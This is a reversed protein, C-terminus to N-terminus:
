KVTNWDHEKSLDRLRIFHVTKIKRGFERTSELREKDRPRRNAQRSKVFLAMAEADDAGDFLADSVHRFRSAMWVRTNTKASYPSISVSGKPTTLMKSFLDGGVQDQIERMVQWIKGNLRWGKILERRILGAPVINADM